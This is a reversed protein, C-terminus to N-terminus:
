NNDKYQKSSQAESSLSFLFETILKGPSRDKSAKQRNSYHSDDDYQVRKTYKKGRNTEKGYLKTHGLVNIQVKYM